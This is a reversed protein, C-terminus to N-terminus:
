EAVGLFVVLARDFRALEADPLRGLQDGPNARPMMTIKVVMIM